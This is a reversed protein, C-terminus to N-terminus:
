FKKPTPQYAIFKWAGSEQVWVALYRNNLTKQQGNVTVDAEMQGLVLATDDIILVDEIHHDIRHYRLSGTRLKRVYDELSDRNGGSHSYVLRKHSLDELVDFDQELVAQFRRDELRRVSTQATMGANTM